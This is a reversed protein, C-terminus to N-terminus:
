RTSCRGPSRSLGVFAPSQLTIVYFEGVPRSFRATLLDETRSAETERESGGRINLLSPTEPARVVAVAGVVGWAVLVGWRSSVLARAFRDM